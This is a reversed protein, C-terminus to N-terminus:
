ILPAYSYFALLPFALLDGPLCGEDTPPGAWGLLM